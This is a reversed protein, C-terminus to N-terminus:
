EEEGKRTFGVLAVEDLVQGERKLEAKDEEDDRSKQIIEIKKLEGFAERMADQAIGIRVNLKAMEENLGEIEGRVREAFLAFATLTEYDNKEEAIDQEEDKQKLLFSKRSEIKEAQRFLDALIKQKEEVRYKRLRILPNLNAM